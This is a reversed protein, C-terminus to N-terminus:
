LSIFLSAIVFTLAYEFLINLSVWTGMEKVAKFHVLDNCNSIFYLMGLFPILQTIFMIFPPIVLIQNGANMTAVSPALTEAWGDVFFVILLLWIIFLNLFRQDWTGSRIFNFGYLYVRAYNAEENVDAIERSKWSVFSKPLPRRPGRNPLLAKWYEYKVARSIRPVYAENDDVYPDTKSNLLPNLKAGTKKKQTEEEAVEKKQFKNSFSFSGSLNVSM